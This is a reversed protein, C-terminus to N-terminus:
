NVFHYKLEANKFNRIVKLSHKSGPTVEQLSVYMAQLMVLSNLPTGNMEVVIDGIQVGMTALTSNKEIHDIKYGLFKKTRGDRYVSTSAQFLLQPDSIEKHFWKASIEYVNARIKKVPGSLKVSRSKTSKYSPNAQKQAFSLITMAFAMAVVLLKIAFLQKM